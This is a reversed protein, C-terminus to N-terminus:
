IDIDKDDVPHDPSMLLVVADLEVVDDLTLRKGFTELVTCCINYWWSV